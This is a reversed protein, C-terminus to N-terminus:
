PRTPARLAKPSGSAGSKPRLRLAPFPWLADEKPSPSGGIPIGAAEKLADKFAQETVLSQGEGRENGPAWGQQVRAIAVLFDDGELNQRKAWESYPLAEATGKAAQIPPPPSKSDFLM